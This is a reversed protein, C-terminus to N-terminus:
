KQASFIRVNTSFFAPMTDAVSVCEAFCAMFGHQPIPVALQWANQGNSQCARQEWRADRFDRTDATAVWGRVTDVAGQVTVDLTVRGEVQSFDWDLKPLPQGGHLSHHFASISGFVRATDKIGHGENPVYLLYKEGPLQDWYLNCADLPWYRDNTGFILLKPLTLKERYAFPDVISQLVHGRPTSLMDPLNLETYDEIQESYGGFSEVQLKMQANMNLMDIVMPAIATVRPDTAGTLWTTWGRKSAGTVTFQNLTLGWQQQAAASTADMGRMASKVMPLLLPWTPDHTELYNAFTTAILEDEHKGGMMPQFPVQSLVAVVCGFQNAVAAMMRAEGSTPMTEPGNDPWDKKWSGGSIVLVADARSADVQAPKILTLVHRWDIGHWRQSTLHLRLVDCNQIKQQERVEWRYNEDPLAVYDSLESGARLIASPTAQPSAGATPALEQTTTQGSVFQGVAIISCLVGLCYFRLRM